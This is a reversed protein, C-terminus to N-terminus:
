LGLTPEHRVVLVKGYLALRRQLLTQGGIESPELAPDSQTGGSNGPAFTASM